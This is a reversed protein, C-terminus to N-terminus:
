QLMRALAAKQAANKESGPPGVFNAAQNATMQPASPMGPPNKDLSVSSGSDDIAAQRGIAQLGSGLNGRADSVTDFSRGGSYEKAKGLFKNDSDAFASAAAALPAVGAVRALVARRSVSAPIEFASVTAALCVLLRLM